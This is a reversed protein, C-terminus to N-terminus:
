DGNGGGGIGRLPRLPIAEMLAREEIEVNPMVLRLPRFRIMLEELDYEARKRREYERIMRAEVSKCTRWDPRSAPRSFASIEYLARIPLNM